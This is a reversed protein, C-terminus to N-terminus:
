DKKDISKLFLEVAKKQELSGNQTTEKLEEAFVQAFRGSGNEELLDLKERTMDGGLQSVYRKEQEHWSYIVFARGNVIDVMKNTEYDTLATYTYQYEFELEAEGVSFHTNIQKRRGKQYFEAQRETVQLAEYVKGAILKFFLYKSKLLGSGWETQHTIYFVKNPTHDNAVQVEPLGFQQVYNNKYILFWKGNIQKFVCFDASLIDKGKIFLLVEVEVDEDLNV